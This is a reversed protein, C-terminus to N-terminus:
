HILVLPQTALDEFCTSCQVFAKGNVWIALYLNRQFPRCNKRSLLIKKKGKSIFNLTKKASLFDWRLWGQFIGAWISTPQMLIGVKESLLFSQTIGWTAQESKEHLKVLQLSSIKGLEEFIYQTLNPVLAHIYIFSRSFFCDFWSWHTRVIFSHILKAHMKSVKSM